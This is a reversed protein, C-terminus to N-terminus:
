NFIAEMQLGRQDLGVPVLFIEMEGVQQNTLRYIRQEVMGPGPLRFLLSFPERQATKSRKLSTVSVLEAAATKGPAVEMEFSAGVLPSFTAPTLQDLPIM